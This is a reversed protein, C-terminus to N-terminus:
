GKFISVILGFWVVASTITFGWLGLTIGGAIQWMSPALKYITKIKQPFGVNLGMEETDNVMKM